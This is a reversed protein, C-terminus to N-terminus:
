SPPCFLSELFLVRQTCRAIFCFILTLSVVSNQSLQRANTSTSLHSRAGTGGKPGHLRSGVVVLAGGTVTHERWAFHRGAIVIIVVHHAVRHLEHRYSLQGPKDVRDLVLPMYEEPPLSGTPPFQFVRELIFHPKM